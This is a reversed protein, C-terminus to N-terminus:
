RQPQGSPSPTWMSRYAAELNQVFRPEDMLASGQLSLRLSRRLRAIGERDAARELAVREYDDIDVAVWEELGLAGLISAASRSVPIEGSATVVPVGMWLSDLTTTGGGYPFTDLAVDVTNFLRFYAELDLRQVFRLRSAEVGCSGMIETIADQKGRTAGGAVVLRSGPTQALIRGWRECMARSIKTAQCFSGFTFYGNKEFPAQRAADVELFPRYCWQSPSIPKLKETHLAASVGAPDTREDCLRWDIRTLGTTNLYGLWSVQIPAPRQAFVAMRSNGTHGSLDVLIDIGDAHIADALQTDDMTAADVWHDCLGEIRETIHDSTGGHSYGYVEFAERDHGELVPILFLSVPHVWFDASVYGIKLRRPAGTASAHRFREPM